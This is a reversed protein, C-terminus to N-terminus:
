DRTALKGAGMLFEISITHYDYRPARRGDKHAELLPKFDEPQKVGFMGKLRDFYVKSEARAFIEFSGHNGRAYVLMHPWWSIRWSDSSLTSKESCLYAVFEAQALKLESLGTGALREKMLVGIPSFFSTDLRKNRHELTSIGSNFISFDVMMDRGFERNREYYYRESLLRTCLDFREHSIFAALAHLFFEYGLFKFNDFDHDSYSNVSAPRDFYPILSEFFRHINSGFDGRTDYVAIADFIQSLENRLPIASRVNEIFQEDWEKEPDKVIRLREFNTAIMKFYDVLAGNASAKNGKIADIARRFLPATGLSVDAEEDLYSPRQGLAKRQYLPKDNIWRVLREFDDTYSEQSSLDIYIRSAYYTPLYPKGYEDREKLVAVFKDQGTEAYIKPSIIQAETGVGGSRNNTKEAYIKDCILLVKKVNPDNVMREMFAIADHGERLDFKDLLVHVGSDGLENALNVVWQEHEPSSWSYSIFAQPLSDM